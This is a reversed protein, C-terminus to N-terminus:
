AKVAWTTGPGAWSRVEQTRVGARFAMHAKSRLSFDRWFCPTFSTVPKGARSGWIAWVEVGVVLGGPWSGLFLYVPSWALLFHCGGLYGPAKGSKYLCLKNNQQCFLSIFSSESSWCFSFATLVLALESMTSGQGSSSALLPTSLDCGLHRPQCWFAGSLALQKFEERWEPGSIRLELSSTRCFSPPSRLASHVGPSQNIPVVTPNPCTVTSWQEQTQQCLKSARMGMELSKALVWISSVFYYYHPGITSSYTLSYSMWSSETRPLRVAFFQINFSATTLIRKGSGWM